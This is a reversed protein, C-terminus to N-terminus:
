VTYATGIILHTIEELNRDSHMKRSAIGPTMYIIRSDRNVCKDLGVHYGVINPLETNRWLKSRELLRQSVTRAALKRPQTVWITCPRKNRVADDLIYLPVQTTKGSGTAGRIVICQSANIGNM